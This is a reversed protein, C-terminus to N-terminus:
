KLNQKELITNLTKLLEPFKLFGSSENFHGGKKIVQNTTSVKNAFLLLEQKSLFPDNDSYICHVIKSFKKIDSIDIGQLYFEKNLNDFNKDGSLFDYFGSILILSYVSIKNKVLFDIIFPCGSSHAIFVTDNNIFKKYQLLIKEWSKYNQDEPTPFHPIFVKIDKSMQINKFLWPFWNEDPNGLTGHILFINRM